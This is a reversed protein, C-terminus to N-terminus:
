RVLTTICPVGYEVEIIQGQTPYDKNEWLTVNHFGGLMSLADQIESLEKQEASLLFGRPIVISESRTGRTPVIGGHIM